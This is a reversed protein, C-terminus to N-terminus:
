HPPHLHTAAPIRAPEPEYHRGVFGADLRQLYRWAQPRILHAVIITGYRITVLDRWVRVTSGAFAEHTEALRDLHQQLRQAIEDASPIPETM